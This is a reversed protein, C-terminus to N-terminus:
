LALNKSLEFCNQNQNDSESPIREFFRDFIVLIVWCNYFGGLVVWLNERGFYNIERLQIGEFFLEGVAWLQKVMQHLTDDEANVEQTTRRDNDAVTV